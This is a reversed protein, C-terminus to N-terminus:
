KNFLVKLLINCHQVMKMILYRIEVVFKNIKRNFNQSLAGKRESYRFVTYFDFFKVLRLTKMFDNWSEGPFGVMFHTWLLTTKSIRRIKKIIRKIESVNYRRNMRRIIKNSGSQMTINFSNIKIKQFLGLMNKEYRILWNPNLDTIDFSIGPIEKSILLLLKPFTMGIDVGYAGCDDSVLSLTKGPSYVKKIDNIIDGVPRSKTNGRAKKIVCYSCNGMCGRSIEVFVRNKFYIEDYIKKFLKKKNLFISLVKKVFYNYTKSIDRDQLKITKKLKNSLYDEKVDAFRVDNLFIKDLENLKLPIINQLKKSFLDTNIKNLCGISIVNKGLYKNFIEITKKEHIDNFGCTNVIVYDANKYHKVIKHGNKILYFYVRSLEIVNSNCSKNSSDMYVCYKNKMNM